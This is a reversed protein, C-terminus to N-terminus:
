DCLLVESSGDHDCDVIAAAIRGGGDEGAQFLFQLQEQEAPMPDVFAVPCSKPSSGSLGRIQSEFVDREDVAVKRVRRLIQELDSLEGVLSM